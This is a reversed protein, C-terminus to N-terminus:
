PGRKELLLLYNHGGLPHPWFFPRERVAHVMGFVITIQRKVIISDKTFYQPRTALNDVCLWIIAEAELFDSNSLRIGSPLQNRLFLPSKEQM